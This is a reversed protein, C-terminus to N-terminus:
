PKYLRFFVRSAAPQVTFWRIVGNHNISYPADTWSDPALTSSQQVVYGSSLVPWNVTVSGDPNRVLTLTPPAITVTASNQAFIHGALTFTGGSAPPSGQSQSITSRLYFPTGYAAASEGVGGQFVAWNLAYQARASFCLACLLFCFAACVLRHTEAKPMRSENPVRIESKPNKM